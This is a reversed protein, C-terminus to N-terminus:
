ETATVKTIKEFKGPERGRLSAMSVSAIQSPLIEVIPMLAESVEPLEYIAGRGGAELVDRLLTANLERVAPAGELVMVFVEPSLMEFPGHRFAASSMGEGHVGAAEKQIMGGLAAAALSGGRGVVFFDRIGDLAEYMEEVREEWRTLYADFAPALQQLESRTANLDADTLQATVWHLAAMATVSTKCSVSAEFGAQTLVAADAQRALPGDPTNTIAVIYPRQALDVLRVIEASAGSQSVVVALADERILNPTSYLL